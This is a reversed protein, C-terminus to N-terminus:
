FLIWFLVLLIRRVSFLQDADIQVDITEYCHMSQDSNEFKTDTWSLSENDMSRDLDAYPDVEVISLMKTHYWELYWLPKTPEM